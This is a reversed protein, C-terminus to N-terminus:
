TEGDEKMADLLEAVQPFHRGTKTLNSVFTSYQKGEKYLVNCWIDNGVSHIRTVVGACNHKDEVEDGVKIEDEAKKQEEYARLKEIAKAATNYDLVNTMGHNDFCDFQEKNSMKSIKRAVEWADDLGRQYDAEPDYKEFGQLARGSVVSHNLVSNKLYYTDNGVGFDRIEIIYKDGINTM